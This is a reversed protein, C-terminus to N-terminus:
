TSSTSYVPRNNRSPLATIELSSAPTKSRSALRPQPLQGCAPQQATEEGGATGPQPFDGLTQTHVVQRVQAAARRSSASGFVPNWAQRWKVRGSGSALTPRNRRLSLIDSEQPHDKVVYAGTGPEGIAMSSPKM